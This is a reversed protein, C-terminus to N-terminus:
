DLGHIAEGEDVSLIQHGALVPDDALQQALWHPLLAFRQLQSVGRAALDLAPPIWFIQRIEEGGLWGKRVREEREAILTEIEFHLVWPLREACDALRSALAGEDHTLGPAVYPGVILRRVIRPRVEPLLEDLQRSVALLNVRGIATREAAQLLRTQEAADIGHGAPALDREFCVLYIFPRNLARDYTAFSWLWRPVSPDSGVPELSGPVFPAFLKEAGLAELYRREALRLQLDRAHLGHDVIRSLMERKLADREPLEALRQARRELDARLGLLTSWHFLGSDSPDICLPEGDGAYCHRLALLEFTDCLTALLPEVSRTEPRTIGAGRALTSRLAGLAGRLQALYSRARAEDSVAVRNADLKFSQWISEPVSM